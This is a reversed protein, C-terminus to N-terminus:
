GGAVAARLAETMHASFARMSEALPAHHDAGHYMGAEVVLDCPVGAVELRRAYDVDEPHFLDLDGVGIWAPPLGTLDAARSASAYPRDDEAQPPHGLYATWGYHNSSVTWIFMGRGGHDTRLTTRDDLMPYVLTQFRIPPGGRDRALQCLTAALGGGASEGGVAIRATDVELAAAADHLWRLAAYCDHLGDPFPHEPALRYDVSVVLIGLDRALESCRDHSAAPHGVILGGGHIWLLAGSPRPRQPPEYLVVGVDPGDEPGPVSRVEVTVGPAVPTPRSTVIRAARFGARNSIALPLYLLPTRLEAPVDRIAARRRATARTAAVAGAAAALALLAPRVTRSRPSRGPM